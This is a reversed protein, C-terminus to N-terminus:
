ILLVVTRISTALVIGGPPPHTRIETSRIDSSLWDLLRPALVQIELDPSLDPVRIVNQDVPVEIDICPGCHCTAELTEPASPTHSCCGHPVPPVALSCHSERSDEVAVRGTESVCYMPSAIVGPLVIPVYVAM